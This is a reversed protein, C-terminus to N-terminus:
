SYLVLNPWAILLRWHCCPVYILSKLNACRLQGFRFDEPINRRTPQYLSLPTEFCCPVNRKVTINSKSSSPVASSRFTQEQRATMV